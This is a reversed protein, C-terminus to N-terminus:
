ANEADSMSVCSEIRFETSFDMEDVIRGRNCSHAYYSSDAYLCM